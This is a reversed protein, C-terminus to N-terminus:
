GRPPRRRRALLVVLLVIVVVVLLCCLTGLGGFFSGRPRRRDAEGAVALIDPADAAWALAPVTLALVIGAVAAGARAWWRKVSSM